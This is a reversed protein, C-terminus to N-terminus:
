EYLSALEAYLRGGPSLPTRDLDCYVIGLANMGRANIVATKGSDGETNSFNFHSPDLLGLRVEWIWVVVGRNEKGRSYAGSKEGLVYRVTM